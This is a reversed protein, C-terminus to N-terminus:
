FTDPQAVARTLAMLEEQFHTRAISVWRNPEADMIRQMEACGMPNEDGEPGALLRAATAQSKLHGSVANILSKLAIGETKIHNMLNIEEVTLDRYGKILRHQNDAM